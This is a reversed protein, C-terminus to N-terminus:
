VSEVEIKTGYYIAAQVAVESDGLRRGYVTHDRELELDSVGPFVSLFIPYARSGRLINKLTTRDGPPMFELEIPVRKRIPGADSWQDGADTYDIKTSDVDTDSANTANYTPSWYAGCILRAAEIYGQLNSADTIDIAMGVASVASTLWHRLFAGGGYAYASAAQAATWGTLSLAQAPCALVTGSDYTYSQWSDIYGLPRTAAASTTPYYSSATSGAEVQGFAIDIADGSTAILIDLRATSANTGGDNAFRAWSGTLPLTTWATNATNRISVAGSGTRRRIWISAAASGVNAATQYIEGNAASATLTTASNTGDPGAVGTSLAALNTKTWVANTFDDSYKILNTAQAENTLHVRQTATPSFNGLMAIGQILEPTAWTASIRVTTGTARYVDSKRDTQLNTVVLAGSTSSASLTARNAANDAIIRLNSM